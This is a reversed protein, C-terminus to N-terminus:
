NEEEKGATAQENKEEEKLKTYLSNSVDKWNTRGRRCRGLHKYSNWYIKRQGVTKCNICYATLYSCNDKTGEWDITQGKITKVSKIILDSNCKPCVLTFHDTTDYAIDIADMSHCSFDIGETYNKKVIQKM